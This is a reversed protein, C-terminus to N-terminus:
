RDNERTVDLGHGIVFPEREPPDVRRNRYLIFRLDGDPTVVAVKGEDHGEARIRELYTRFDSHHEPPIMEEMSQGIMAEESVGLTRRAAPNLSLLRGELDHSCLLAFSDEVLHRYREEREALARHAERERSVDRLIGRITTAVGDEFRVSLHGEVPIRRDDSGILTVECRREERRTRAEAITRRCADRDEPAVLDLFRRRSIEARSYGLTERFARNVFLFRGDPSLSLILDHATELFDYLAAREREVEAAREAAQRELDTLIEERHRLFQGLDQALGAFGEYLEAVERPASPPPPDPVQPPEGRPSSRVVSALERLPGTIHRASRAGLLAAALLGLGLTVGTLLLFRVGGVFVRSKPQRVFVVWPVSEAEAAAVLHGEIEEESRWATGSPIPDLSVWGTSPTAYVVKGEGDAILVELGPSSRFREEPHTLRGLDLSGELIGTPGTRDRVPVSVAVIPDTGFGRGRFAPSVFSRGAMAERFYRRDRVSAGRAVPDEGNRDLSPSSATLRGSSDAVLLTLFGPYRRHLDELWESDATTPSDLRGAAADLARRHEGLYADIGRALSEAVDTLRTEASVGREHFYWLSQLVALVLVPIVALLLFRRLLSSKLGSRRRSPTEGSLTESPGPPGEGPTGARSKRGRDTM